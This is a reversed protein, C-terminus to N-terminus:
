TLFNKIYINEIKVNKLLSFNELPYTYLYLNRININSNIFNIAESTILTNILKEGFGVDIKYFDKELNLYLNQKKILNIANKDKMIDFLSSKENNNQNIPKTKMWPDQNGLIFSFPLKQNKLIRTNQFYIEEYKEYKQLLNYFDNLTLNSNKIIIKKIERDQHIKLYKVSNLNNTIYQYSINNLIHKNNSSCIYFNIKLNLIQTIINKNLILSRCYEMCYHINENELSIKRIYSDDSLKCVILNSNYNLCNNDFLVQIIKMLDEKSEVMFVCNNFYLNNKITLIKLYWKKRKQKFINESCYIIFTDEYKNYKDKFNEFIMKDYVTNLNKPLNPIKFNSAFLKESITQKLLSLYTKRSIKFKEIAENAQDGLSNDKAINSILVSIIKNLNTSERCLYLFTIPENSAYAFIETLITIKLKTIKELICSYKQRKPISEM